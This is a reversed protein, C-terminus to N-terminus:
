RTISLDVGAVQLRASRLDPQAMLYKVLELLPTTHFSLAPMPRKLPELLAPEYFAALLLSEDSASAGLRARLAPLAPPLAAGVPDDSM